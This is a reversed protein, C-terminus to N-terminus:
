NFINVVQMQELPLPLDAAGVKIQSAATSDAGDAILKTGDNADSADFSGYHPTEPCYAPKGNEFDDATTGLVSHAALM